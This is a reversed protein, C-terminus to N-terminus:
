RRDASREHHIVEWDEWGGLPHRELFFRKLEVRAKIRHGANLYTQVADRLIRSVPKGRAKAEARLREELEKPLYFSVAAM